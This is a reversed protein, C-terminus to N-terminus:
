PNHILTNGANRGPYPQQQRNAAAKGNREAGAQHRQDEVAVAHTEVFRRDYDLGTVFRVVSGIRGFASKRPDSQRIKRAFNRSDQISEADDFIANTSPRTGASRAQAHSGPVVAAGREHGPCARKRAFIRSGPAM